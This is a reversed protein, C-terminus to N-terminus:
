IQGSEKSYKRTWKTAKNGEKENLCKELLLGGLPTNNDPIMYPFASCAYYDGTFDRGTIYPLLTKEPATLSERFAKPNRRNIYITHAKKGAIRVASKIYNLGKEQISVPAFIVQKDGEFYNNKVYLRYRFEDDILSNGSGAFDDLIVAIKNDIDKLPASEGNYHLFKSSDVNNAKAYCYAILSFSKDKTPILYVVDDMTKGQNKLYTEINKYQQKLAKNLSQASYVDIMTDLYKFLLEKAIEIEKKSAGKGGLEKNIAIDLTEEIQKESPYLPRIRQAINKSDAKYARDNKLINIPADEGFVEKTKRIIDGNMIENLSLNKNQMDRIVKRTSEELSLPAGLFTQSVDEGGANANFGDIVALQLRRDKVGNQIASFFSKNNEKCKRYQELTKDDIFLTGVRSDEEFRIQKKNHSLYKIADNLGAQESLIDGVGYSKLPKLARSLAPLQSYSSFQTLRSVINYIKEKEMGTELHLKDVMRIIDKESTIDLMDEIKASLRNAIQGLDSFNPKTEVSNIPCSVNASKVFIDEKPQERLKAGFSIGFNNLSPLKGIYPSNIKVPNIHM